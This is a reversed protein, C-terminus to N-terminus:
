RSSNHQHFLKLLYESETIAGIEIHIFRQVGEAISSM